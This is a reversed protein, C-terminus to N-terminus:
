HFTGGNGVYDLTQAHAQTDSVYFTGATHEGGTAYEYGKELLQQQNGGKFAKNNSTVYTKKSTPDTLVTMAHGNNNSTDANSSQQVNYGAAGLLEGSMYAFGECDQIKRGNYAQKGDVDSWKSADATNVGNITPRDDGAEKAAAQAAKKSDYMKGGYLFTTEKSYKVDDKEHGKVEATHTHFANSYNEFEDLAKERKDDSNFTKFYAKLQDQSPPNSAKIGADKMGQVFEAQRQAIEKKDTAEPAAKADMVPRMDATGVQPGLTKDAKQSVFAGVSQPAPANTRQTQQIQQPGSVTTVASM